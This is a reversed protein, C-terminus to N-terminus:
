VCRSFQANKQWPIVFHDFLTKWWLTVVNKTKDERYRNIKARKPRWGPDCALGEPLFLFSNLCTLLSWGNKSNGNLFPFLLFRIKNWTFRKEGVKTCCIAYGETSVTHSEWNTMIKWWKTFVHFGHLVHAATCCESIMQSNRELCSISTDDLNLTNPTTYQRLLLTHFEAAMRIKPSKSCQWVSNLLALCRSVIM